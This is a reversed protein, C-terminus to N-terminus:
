SASPSPNDAPTPAARTLRKTIATDISYIAVPYRQLKNSLELTIPKIESANELLRSVEIGREKLPVIKEVHALVRIALAQKLLTIMEKNVHPMSPTLLHSLHTTAEPYVAIATLKKILITADIELFYEYLQDLTCVLKQFESDNFLNRSHNITENLTNWALFINSLQYEEQLDSHSRIQKESEKISKETAQLAPVITTLLWKNPNFFNLNDLTDQINKSTEFYIQILEEYTM